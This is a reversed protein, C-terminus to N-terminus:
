KAKTNKITPNSVDFVSPDIIDGEKIAVVLDPEKTVSQKVETSSKIDSEASISV